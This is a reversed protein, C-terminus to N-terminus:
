DAGSQSFVLALAGPCLPSVRHSNSDLNVSKVLLSGLFDAVFNVTEEAAFVVSILVNQGKEWREHPISVFPPRKQTKEGCLRFVHIVNLVFVVEWFFQFLEAQINLPDNQTPENGTLFGCAVLRRMARESGRRTRSRNSSARKRNM